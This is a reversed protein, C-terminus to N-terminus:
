TPVSPHKLRECTESLQQLSSKPPSQVGQPPENHEFELVTFGCARCYDFDSDQDAGKCLVCPGKHHLKM